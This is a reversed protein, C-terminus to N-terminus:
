TALRDARELAERVAPPAPLLLKAARLFAYTATRMAPTAPAVWHFGYLRRVKAPLIAVTGAAAVTWLPRLALPTPPLLIYRVGERAAPTLALGEFGRLYDSLERTSHPVDDADLGVLEAHRVMERVYRDAEARGLPSAYVRYAVLFSHVEVNHVWLLLDPDDARYARGTVPDVGAIAQHIKRLRAGAARASSTDGFTTISLYESTRMLRSWPDARYNSHQSVAAMAVPNLAQILLARLGGVLSAPDAHIRWVMSDPGFLGLDTMVRCPGPTQSRLSDLKV